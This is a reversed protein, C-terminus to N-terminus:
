THNKSVPRDCNGYKSSIPSQPSPVPSQPSPVPSQPSPLHPSSVVLREGQRRTRKRHGIGLAGHGM